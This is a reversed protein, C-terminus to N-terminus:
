NGKSKRIQHTFLVYRNRETYVLLAKTGRPGWTRIITWYIDFPGVRWFRESSRTKKQRLPPLGMSKRYNDEIDATASWILATLLGGVGFLLMFVFTVIFFTSWDFNQM